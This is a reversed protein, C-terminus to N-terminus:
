ARLFRLTLDMTVHQLEEGQFAEPGLFAFWAELRPRGLDFYQHRKKELEAGCPQFPVLCGISRCLQSQHVLRGYGDSPAVLVQAAGLVGLPEIRRRGPKALEQHLQLLQSRLHPGNSRLEM